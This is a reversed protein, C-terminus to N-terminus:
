KSLLNVPLIFEFQNPGRGEYDQDLLHSYRFGFSIPLQNWWKTDFYIEIGYSRYQQQVGGGNVSFYPVGTYDYFINSRIRLFYVIDAFGWDPYVLPFNYNAGLRYMRYFNEGSYGRSFPFSNTFSIQNSSDRQQFAAALVLSHTLAIGPLYFYGSALFRNGSRGTVARNYSVSLFQAWRPYIQQRATQIEHIFSVSPDIYAYGKNSFTDKYAGKFYPQSYVIDSGFQLSTIERGKSLSLPITFGTKAQMENWYVKQDHFFANRDFIYSFGVDIWPFFAGYVANVGLQKYRENRNYGAFLESQLSNLVNQSVLSFTYDPDDIYPRWSHFNFLRFSTSFHQVAQDTFHISDLLDANRTELSSIRKQTLPASWQDASIPDFQVSRHDTVVMSYGVATFRTWAYRGLSRQLQYNGTGSSIDTSRIFYLQHNASAFLLDNGEHSASFYVTDHQVSPFGIVNMSFPTLWDATGSHIDILALSMEGKQTRVASVIRRDDYFKPYTYLLQDPNPISKEIAGTGSNLIRLTTKGNVAVDVALIHLGDESIDPSFYKSRSTLRKENGTQLDLIRIVNFDRWGWRLDPEYAAYVIKDNKYSFYNDISVARTIIKKETKNQLDRIVFRHPKKYTTQVFVVHNDDIFQPFEEDARFHKQRAADTSVPEKFSNPDLQQNFYKLANERYETFSQGAYKMVGKQLPYFLGKFSAADLTIKRWFDAGYKERGYAVMMYGLPYHDPVYDRLSGNRLKMWSYNKEALWLANYTNLFGPLRGRGQTSVLTEQYVADGEWFWNPISLSNALEQGGEGFLYYFIKSLGIRYNNYQQVHRYEHIALQQQWPLSGLEFSNQDATLQFESLFPALQVYANSITTQNQFIIDIKRQQSGITPLTNKSLAQVISSVQRAQTELGKPFIIRAADTNIQEWKLSPPNGGFPQTRASFSYLLLIFIVFVKRFLM